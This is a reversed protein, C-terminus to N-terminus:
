KVYTVFNTLMKNVIYKYLHVININNLIIIIKVQSVM